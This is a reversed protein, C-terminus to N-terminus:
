MRVINYILSRVECESRVGESRVGESKVGWEEM